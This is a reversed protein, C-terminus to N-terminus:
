LVSSDKKHFYANTKTINYVSIVSIIYFVSCAKFSRCKFNLEILNMELQSKHLKAFLQGSELVYTMSKM